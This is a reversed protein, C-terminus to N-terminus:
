EAEDESQERREAWLLEVVASLLLLHVVPTHELLQNTKKREERKGGLSTTERISQERKVRTKRSNAVEEDKEESMQARKEGTGDAARGREWQRGMTEGVQGMRRQGGGGRVAEQDGGYITAMV